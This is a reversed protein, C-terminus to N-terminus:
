IVVPHKDEPQQKNLTNYGEYPHYNIQANIFHPQSKATHM